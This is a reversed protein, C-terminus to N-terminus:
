VAMELLREALARFDAKTPQKALVAAIEARLVERQLAKRKDRHSPRRPQDDWPSDQRDVLEEESRAWAEVLSYMWLNLNFCGINSDLNRL